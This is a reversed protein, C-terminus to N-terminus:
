HPQKHYIQIEWHKSFADDHWRKLLMHYLAVTITCYKYAGDTQYKFRRQTIQSFGEIPQKLMKSQKENFLGGYLFFTKANQIKNQLSFCIHTHLYTHINSSNQYVYILLTFQNYNTIVSWHFTYFILNWILGKLVYMVCITNTFSIVVMLLLLSSVYCM